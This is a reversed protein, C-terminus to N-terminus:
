QWTRQFVEFEKAQEVIQATRDDSVIRKSCVALFEVGRETDKVGTTQGEAIKILDDKWLLPLRPELTRALTRVTVDRLGAALKLTEGCRTFKQKFALAEQRRQSLMSKRKAAPIVFIIQEMLYETTEPKEGGSDRLASMTQQQTRSSTEARFKEGVTRNWSIQGRIFEKFHASTVGSRNLVTNMQSVSMRNSKAFNAFSADVESDNAVVNRRKAEQIKIKDEVLEELARENRNGGVRRLALFASRKQVDYTSIPEGNVVARIRTGKQSVTSPQRIINSNTKTSDANEAASNEVDEQQPQDASDVATTPTNCGTLALLLAAVIFRVPWTSYGRTSSHRGTLASKITSTM